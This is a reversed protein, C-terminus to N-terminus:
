DPVPQAMVQALPEVVEQLQTAPVTQPVLGTSAPFFFATATGGLAQLAALEWIEANGTLLLAATAGQAIASVVNTGVMLAHRPLRDAWIGGVLMFVVQPLSRSAVVLGVDTTSGTLELVAFPLAVIAFTSGAYSSVRGLFM